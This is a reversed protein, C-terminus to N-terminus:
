KEPHPLVRQWAEPCAKVYPYYAKASPCYYWYHSQVEQPAQQQEIYVPPAPPTILVPQPPYYVPPPYWMPGWLPGGVYVGVHTRWGHAWAGQGFSLLLAALLLLFLNRSKM